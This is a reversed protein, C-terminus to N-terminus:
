VHIIWEEANIIKCTKSCFLMVWFGLLQKEKSGKGGGAKRFTTNFYSNFLIKIEVNRQPVESPKM